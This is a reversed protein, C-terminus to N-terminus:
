AANNKEADLEAQAKEVLQDEVAEWHIVALADLGKQTPTGHEDTYGAEYLTKAKPDLKRKAWASLNSISNMLREKTGTTPNTSRILKLDFEFGWDPEAHDFAVKVYRQGNSDTRTKIVTGEMGLRNSYFLGTGIARVRQGVHIMTSDNTFSNRLPLQSWPLRAIPRANSPPRVRILALPRYGGTLLVTLILTLGCNLPWGGIRAM